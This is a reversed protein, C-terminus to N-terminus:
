LTKPHLLGDPLVIPALGRRLRRDRRRTGEDDIEFAAQQAGLQQHLRQEAAGAAHQGAEARAPARAHRRERIDQRPGLDVVGMQGIVGIHQVLRQRRPRPALLNKQDGAAEGIMSSADSRM